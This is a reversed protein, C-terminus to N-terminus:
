QAPKPEPVAGKAADKAHQKKVDDVRHEASKGGKKATDPMAKADKALQEKQAHDKPTHAAAAEAAKPDVKTQGAKAADQPPQAADTVAPAPVAAPAAAPPVQAFAAGAMVSVITTALATRTLLRTFSM